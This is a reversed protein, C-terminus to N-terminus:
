KLLLEFVRGGVAHTGDEQLVYVCEVEQGYEEIRAEREEETEALVVDYTRDPDTKVAKANYREFLRRLLDERARDGFDYSQDVWKNFAMAPAVAPREPIKHHWIWEIKDSKPAKPHPKSTPPSQNRNPEPETDDVTDQSPHGAEIADFEAEFEDEVVEETHTHAAPTSPTRPPEHPTPETPRGSGDSEVLADKLEALQRNLNSVDNEIRSIPETANDAEVHNRIATELESGTVGKTRGYKKQVQKKFREWLKDDVRVGIKKKRGM